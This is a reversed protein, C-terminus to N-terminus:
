MPWSSGSTPKTELVGPEPPLTLQVSLRPRSGVAAGVSALGPWSTASQNSSEGAGHNEIARHSGLENGSAAQVGLESLLAGVQVPGSQTVPSPPPEAKM